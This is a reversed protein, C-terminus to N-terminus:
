DTSGLDPAASLDPTEAMDLVEGSLDPRLPFKQICESLKAQDIPASPLSPASALSAKTFDFLDYLPDANADRKSMTDLHYRTEIFKMLSSHDGVVHSVYHPKAWPSIAILPVRFGYSAFDYPTAGTGVMPAKDDPACAKPPQVHDYLGGHEDFTIFLVSRKWQPSQTLTSVVGALFADASQPDGPPHDDDGGGYEQSLKPDILVVNPLTGAAADMAFQSYPVLNDQHKLATNIFIGVAPPFVEYYVRWTVGSACVKLPDYGAGCMSTNYDEILSMFNAPESKSFINNETQGYSSAAYLYERNPYTPGAVSAFYRDDIAYANAAAYIWPVDAETYYSMARVGDPAHDELDYPPGNTIVFQNGMLQRHVADWGHNTDEFCYDPDHFRAIPKGSPDPQTVGAPAVDADGQGTAPLNGLLHDFSRNEMMVVIVTDVPIDSGLKVDKPMTLSAPTGATFACQDRMQAVQDSTLTTRPSSDGSSCATLLLAL